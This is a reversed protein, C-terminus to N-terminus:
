LPNNETIKINNLIEIQPIQFIFKSSGVPYNFKGYAPHNSGPYDRELALNWRKMDYFSFGEGWLELRRQFRIEDRLANGSLSSINYASNRTTVMQTLITKAGLEDGAMFKAEAEILYMEAVRMYLYDGQFTPTADYFKLNARLPVQSGSPASLNLGSWKFWKSRKDTSPISSVLRADGSKFVNLLGAYGANLSGIQSFFSAYITSTTGDIDVGWIWEPNSVNSFGDYGSDQISIMNSPMLSKGSRAESAYQAALNLEVPSSGFELFYRALLGAVVKKDIQIINTKTFGTLNSYAQNLDDKIANLIYVKSVRREDVLANDDSYFPIALDGNSYLRVLNFYAFARMAQCRARVYKLDQNSTNQPILKITSNMNYIIKYYFKWVMDTVRNEVQRGTYRYYNGHWHNIVQVMDNSMLDLGLDISKQGYDDHINGGNATNFDNIFFNNGQEIGSAVSLLSEPSSAALNKIQDNSVTSGLDAETFNDSCSTLSLLSIGFILLIKKM